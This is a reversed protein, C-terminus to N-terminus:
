EMRHAVKEMRHAVRLIHRVQQLVNRDNRRAQARIWQILKHDEKEYLRLYCALTATPPTNM